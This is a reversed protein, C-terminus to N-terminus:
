KMHFLDQIVHVLKTKQSILSRVDRLSLKATPKLEVECHGECRDVRDPDDHPFERLGGANFVVAATRSSLNIRSSNFTAAM